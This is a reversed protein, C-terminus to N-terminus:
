EPTGPSPEDWPSFGSIVQTGARKNDYFFIGLLCPQFLHGRCPDWGHSLVSDRSRKRKKNNWRTGHKCWIRPQILCHQKTGSDPSQTTHPTGVEHWKSGPKFGCCLRWAQPLCLEQPPITLIPWLKNYNKCLIRWMSLKRVSFLRKVSIPKTCCLFNLMHILRQM